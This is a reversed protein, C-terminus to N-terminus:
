YGPFRDVVEYSTTETKKNKLLFGVIIGFLLGGIHAFWATGGGEEPTVLSGFGSFFQTIAWYVLFIQAPLEQRFIGGGFIVLTNIRHHPFVMLYYGLIGSIAGSAGLMPITSLPDIFYQLFVASITAGLYFVLYGIIGLSEEVNDGFVWLFLMNFLIHTIGGHLFASTIVPAWTSPDSFSFLAPTFAYQMIFADLDLTTMEFLFVLVNVIVLIITIFPIAYTKHSDSLPIM